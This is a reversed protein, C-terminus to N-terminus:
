DQHPRRFREPDISGPKSFPRMMQLPRHGGVVDEDILEYSNDSTMIMAVDGEDLEQDVFRAELAEREPIVRESGLDFKVRPVSSAIKELADDSVECRHMTMTEMSRSKALADILPEDLTWGSLDIHELSDEKLLSILFQPDMEVDAIELHTLQVLGALVSASADDLRVRKISLKRLSEIRALWRFTEVSVSSEDLNVEQLMKMTQWHATVRDDVQRGPVILSTLEVLEGLEAFKEPTISTHALTLRDVNECGLLADVVSDDLEVGGAAFWELDRLGDVVANKPWPQEVALGRLSQANRITLQEPASVLHLRGRLEPVDVVKLDRLREFRNTDLSRLLGLECLSLSTLRSVDVNLGRLGPLNDILWALQDEELPCDKVDLKELQTMGKLGRLQDFSVGTNGMRLHRIRPNERLPSLDVDSLPLATLDVAVPGDGRGLQNVWSQCRVSDVPELMATGSAFVMYAGLEISRLRPAERISLSRLDRAFCGVHNLSAVNDLHLDTVWTLGPALDNEGLTFFLSATDEDINPLQPLDKLYLSHKQMRNIMLLSLQPLRSLRLTLTEPNPTLSSRAVALTELKPWGDITLEGAVGSPPRPLYLHRITDSWAPTGIQSLELQTGNVNLWRLLKADDFARFQETNLDTGRFSLEALWPLRSIADILGDDLKRNRIYAAGFYRSTKLGELDDGSYRGGIFEFGTLTEQRALQRVLVPDPSILKVHRLRAALRSVGEPLRSAIPAPVWSSVYGNGFRTAQRVLLWHARSSRQAIIYLTLPTLLIACAVAGDFLMRTLKPNRSSEIRRHRWCTFAFVFSAAIVGFGANLLLSRLSWYRDSVHDEHTYRVWYRLPWGAMMPLEDYRRNIDNDGFQRNGVWNGDREVYDCPLNVVVMFVVVVGALVGGALRNKWKGSRPDM